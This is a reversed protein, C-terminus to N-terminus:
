TLNCSPQAMPIIQYVAAGSCYACHRFAAQLVRHLNTETLMGICIQLAHNYVAVPLLEAALAKAPSLVYVRCDPRYSCKDCDCFPPHCACLFTVPLVTTGPCDLLIQENAETNIQMLQMMEAMDSLVVNAGSLAAAQAYLLGNAM